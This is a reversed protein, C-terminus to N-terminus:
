LRENELTNVKEQCYNIMSNLSENPANYVNPEHGNSVKLWYNLNEKAQELKTKESM